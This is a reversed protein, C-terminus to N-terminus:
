FAIIEGTEVIEVPMGDLNSPLKRIIDDRFEKV